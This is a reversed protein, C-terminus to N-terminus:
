YRIYKWTLLALKKKMGMVSPANKFNITDKYIGLLYRKKEEDQVNRYSYKIWELLSIRSHQVLESESNDSFFQIRDLSSRLFFGCREELNEHMISNNRQFYNYLADPMYSVIGARYLLKYTIAEDENQIGKPFRLGDFLEKKYLKNWVVSCVNSNRMMEIVSQRGSWRCPNPNMVIGPVKESSAEDYVTNFGCAVIDAHDKKMMKMLKELCNIKLYDDSDCFFIYNGSAIRLGSNRAESLGKNDQHIITIRNDKLAYEDCLKGSNDTSGDDTLIIELNNYTQYLISTVCRDLYDAVNYVPVIVSIKDESTIPYADITKAFNNYYNVINFDEVSHARKYAKESLEERLNKDFAVKIIAESLDNVFNDGKNVIYGGDGVVEPLAGSNTTILTIGKAMTELAVLGFSEEVLSPMIVVDAKDYFFALEESPMEKICSINENNRSLSYVEGEYGRDFGSFGVIDLKLKKGSTDKSNDAALLFSRLLEKVGKGPIIRGVYLLSIIDKDEEAKDNRNFLSLDLGNYLTSVVAREDQKLIQGKIFDSVAIFQVGGRVLERIMDPSRYMDVDNHMHFYIPVDYKGQCFKVIECATSMMNEIIVADYGGKIESLRNSFCNLIRSDLIRGANVIAFTRNYKDWLRDAMDDAKSPNVAIVNTCSYNKSCEGESGIAFLDISYNRYLENDDIIKTIMGEVAGGKIAPVPLICPSIIAIRKM